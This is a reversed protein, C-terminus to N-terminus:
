YKQRVLNVELCELAHALIEEERGGTQAHESSFEIGLVRKVNQSLTETEQTSLIM